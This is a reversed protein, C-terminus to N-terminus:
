SGDGIAPCDPEHEVAVITVTGPELESPVALRAGCPCHGTTAVLARRADREKTKEDDDDNVQPVVILARFRRATGSM